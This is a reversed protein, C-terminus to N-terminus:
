QRLLVDAAHAIMVARCDRYVAHARDLVDAPSHVHAYDNRTTVVTGSRILSSIDGKRAGARRASCGTVSASRHKSNWGSHSGAWCRRRGELL